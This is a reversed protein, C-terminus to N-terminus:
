FWVKIYLLVGLEDCKGQRRCHKEHTWGFNLVLSQKQVNRALYIRRTIKNATYRNEEVMM